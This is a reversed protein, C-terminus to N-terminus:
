EFRRLLHGEILTFFWEHALDHAAKIWGAIGAQDKPADEDGAQVVTEWLLSDENRIRGRVVRLHVAGRPTTSAFSFRADVGSPQKSVGTDEFLKSCLEVVTKMEQKLFALIDQQNFDFAIANIYRLVVDNVKLASEGGPYAEFLAGITRSIQKEFDAWHYGETDNVTIIGPGLQVLPWQGEGKRFRHQVVYGAIENPISATPLQEHFPYDVQLRDDIRGVAIWYHPDIKMGPAVKQLAWRLEFIAEVLPKNKLTKRVM